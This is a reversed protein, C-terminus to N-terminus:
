SQTRFHLFLVTCILNGFQQAMVKRGEFILKRANSISTEYDNYLFSM